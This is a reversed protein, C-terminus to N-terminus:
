WIPPSSPQLFWRERWCVWSSSRGGLVDFRGPIFLEAAVGDFIAVADVGIHREILSAIESGAPRQRDLVLISRSLEYLREANRRHLLSKQIQNRLRNSLRSVILAIIEFTVLAVWNEPDDVHFSHIPPTFFYDLCAVAAFSCATAEWFGFKLATLVVILLAIFGATPLNFQLRFACYSTLLLIVSGSAAGVM